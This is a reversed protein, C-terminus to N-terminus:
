RIIYIIVVLQKVLPSLVGDKGSINKDNIIDKVVDNFDFDTEVIKNM